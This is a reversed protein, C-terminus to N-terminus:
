EKGLLVDDKMLTNRDAHRALQTAKKTIKRAHEELVDRLAEKASDSVREAGVVRIVRDMAALPIKPM